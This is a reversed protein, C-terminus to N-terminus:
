SKQLCKGHLIYRFGETDFLDRFVVGDEGILGRALAESTMDQLIDALPRAEIPESPQTYSNAQYLALLRNVVYARDLPHILGVAEGYQCLEYILTDISRSKTEKM